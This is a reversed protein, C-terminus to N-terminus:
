GWKIPLSISVSFETFVFTCTTRPPARVHAYATQGWLQEELWQASCSRGIKRGKRERKLGSLGAEREGIIWSKFSGSGMRMYRRKKQVGNSYGPEKGWVGIGRNWQWSTM